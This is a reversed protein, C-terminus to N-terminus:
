DISWKVSIGHKSSTTSANIMDWGSLLRAAGRPKAQSFLSERSPADISMSVSMWTYARRRGISRNLSTGHLGPIGSHRPALGNQTRSSKLLFTLLCAVDQHLRVFSPTIGSVLFAGLPLMIGCMICGFSTSFQGGDAKKMSLGKRM